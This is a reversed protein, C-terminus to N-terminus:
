LKQSVVVANGDPDEVVVRLEHPGREIRSAAKADIAYTAALIDDTRVGVSVRTGAVNEGPGLLALTIDGGDLAAYRDGDRFKLKFGLRGVYFGLSSGIDAVPILIESVTSM